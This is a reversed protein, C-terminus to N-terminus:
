RACEVIGLILATALYASLPVSVGHWLGRGVVVLPM